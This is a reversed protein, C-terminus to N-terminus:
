LPMNQAFLLTNKNEGTKARYNLLAGFARATNTDMQYQTTMVTSEVPSIRSHVEM